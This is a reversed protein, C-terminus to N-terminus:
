PRRSGRIPSPEASYLRINRPTSPQARSSPTHHGASNSVTEGQREVTDSCEAASVTSIPQRRPRGFLFAREGAEPSRANEIHAMLSEFGPGATFSTVIGTSGGFDVVHWSLQNNPSDLSWWHAPSDVRIRGLTILLRHGSGVSEPDMLTGRTGGGDLRVSMAMRNWRTEFHHGSFQSSRECNVTYASAGVAHTRRRKPPDLMAGIVPRVSLDEASM